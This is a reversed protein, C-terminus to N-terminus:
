GHLMNFVACDLKRARLSQGNTPLEVRAAGALASLLGHAYRLEELASRDMLNLCHQLNIIAGVVFPERISGKSNRGGKARGQAFELARQPSDEWFYIGNGLWDYDNESPSMHTVEGRLLAEGVSADCGHFGLVFHPHPTFAQFATPWDIFDLCRLAQYQPLGSEIHGEADDM